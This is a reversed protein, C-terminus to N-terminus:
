VVAPEAPQRLRGAAAEMGAYLKDVEAQSFAAELAPVFVEEEKAFHSGVLAYLGFLLRRADTIQATSPGSAPIANMLAALEETLTNVEIHERAMTATAGPAKMAIEVAPYLVEDEAKAHIILHDALFEVNPAILERLLRANNGTIKEATTRLQGVHPFLEAHEDQLAQMKSPM